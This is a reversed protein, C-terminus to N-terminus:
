VDQPQQPSRYLKVCRKSNEFAIIPVLQNDRSRGYHRAFFGVGPWFEKQWKQEFHTGYKSLMKGLFLTLEYGIRAHLTPMEGFREFFRKRLFQDAQQTADTYRSSVFRLNLTQLQDLTLQPLWREDGIICPNLKMIAAASLVNAAILNSKSAIYLCRLGRTENSNNEISESEQELLTQCLSNLSRQIEEEDISLIFAVDEGTAEEICSRYARALTCDAKSNSCVVGIQSPRIKQELTATAATRAQTELSSQFLFAFPNDDIAEANESLPNFMPIRHAKSFASVVPITSAYLPGVIADAQQMFPHELIAKATTAEQQTDFVELNLEIGLQSLDATAARIGQYLHLTFHDKWEAIPQPRVSEMFFPLLVAVNYSSKKVSHIGATTDCRESTLDFQEAVKQLLAADRQGPPQQSLREYLRSAISVDTPYTEYLSRLAEVDGIDGLLRETLQRCNEALLPDTIHGWHDLAATLDINEARLQGCWYRVEQIQNWQPFRKLIDEFRTEALRCDGKRYASLAHYFCVYPTLPHDATHDTWPALCQECAEYSQVDYLTKAKKYQSEISLSNTEALALSCSLACCIAGGWLRLPM